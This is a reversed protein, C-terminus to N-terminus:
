QNECAAHTLLSWGVPRAKNERRRRSRACFASLSNITKRSFSNPSQISFEPAAGPPAPPFGGQINQYLRFLLRQLAFLFPSHPKSTEKGRLNPAFWSLLVRWALFWLDTRECVCFGRRQFWAGIYVKQTRACAPSRTTQKASGRCFFVLWPNLRVCIGSKHTSIPWSHLSASKQDSYIHLDFVKSTENPLLFFM